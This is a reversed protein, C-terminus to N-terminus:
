EVNAMLRKYNELFRKTILKVLKIGFSPNDYFLAIAEKEGMSYVEVDEQCIASATRKEFPSFVGMEGIINGMGVTVDIEELKINGKEIYYIKEARDGKKFIYEGAEYAEENMYPTLWSFSDYTKRLILINKDDERTYGVDDMIERIMYIGLGGIQRDEIPIDLDPDEKELPNFPIGSDIIKMIFNQHEVDIDCVIEVDGDGDPYAYNIVNVLAEESALQLRYKTQKNFGINKISDQIFDLMTDLNEIKAPLVIKSM